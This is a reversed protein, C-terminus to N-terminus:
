SRQCKENFEQHKIMQLWCNTQTKRKVRKLKLVVQTKPDKYMWVKHWSKLVCNQSTHQSQMRWMRSQTRSRQMTNEKEYIYKKRFVSTSTTVLFVGGGYLGEVEKEYYLTKKNQIQLCNHMFLIYWFALSYTYWSQNVKLIISIYLEILTKYAKAHM